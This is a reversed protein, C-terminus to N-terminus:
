FMALEFLLEILSKYECFSLLPCLHMIFQREAHAFNVAHAYIISFCLKNHLIDLMLYNTLEFQIYNSLPM